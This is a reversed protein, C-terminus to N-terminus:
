QANSRARVQPVHANAKGGGGVGVQQETIVATSFSSPHNLVFIINRSM